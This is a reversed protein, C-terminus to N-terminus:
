LSAQALDELTAQVSALTSGFARELYHWVREPDMPQRNTTARVGQSAQVAPVPRGLV